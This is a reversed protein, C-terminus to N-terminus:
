KRAAIPLNSKIKLGLPCTEPEQEGKVCKLPPWSFEGTPAIRLQAAGLACSFLRTTQGNPALSGVSLVWNDTVDGKDNLASALAGMTVTAASPNSIVFNMRCKGAGAGAMMTANLSVTGISESAQDTPVFVERPGAHSSGIPAVASGGSEGAGEKKGGALAPGALLLASLTVLTLLSQKM